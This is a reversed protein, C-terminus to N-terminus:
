PRELYPQMSLHPNTPPTPQWHRCLLWAQLAIHYTSLESLYYNTGFGCQDAVSLRFISHIGHNFISFLM